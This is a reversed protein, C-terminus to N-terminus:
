REVVEVKVVRKDPPVVLERTETHIRNDAITDVFNGDEDSGVATAPLTLADPRRDIELPERIDVHRKGDHEGVGVAVDAVQLPQAIVPQIQSM